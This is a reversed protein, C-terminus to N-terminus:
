VIEMANVDFDINHLIGVPPTVLGEFIRRNRERWVHWVSAALRVRATRFWDQGRGRGGRIVPIIDGINRGSACVGLVRSQESWIHWTVDCEFFLHRISEPASSCLVCIPDPVAVGFSSLRDRTLLRGLLLKYVCLQMKRALGKCWVFEYDPSLPFTHRILNYCSRFQFEGSGLSARPPEWIWRDAPLAPDIATSMIIGGLEETYRYSEPRWVRDRLIRSCKLGRRDERHTASGRIELLSRRDIWPDRWLDTDSGDRMVRRIATKLVVRHRLVTKFTVSHNNDPACTWFNGQKVYRSHMWDAWLSGRSIFSWALKLASAERIELLPRLGVGGEKRPRCLQEWSVAHM